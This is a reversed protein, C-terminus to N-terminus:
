GRRRPLYPPQEGRDMAQARHEQSQTGSGPGLQWRARTNLGPLIRRIQLQHRQGARDCGTDTIAREIMSTACGVRRAM